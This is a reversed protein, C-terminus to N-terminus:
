PTVRFGFTWTNGAAWKHSDTTYLVQTKVTYKGIILNTEYQPPTETSTDFRYEALYTGEAFTYSSTEFTKVTVGDRDVIVSVKVKVSVGCLNQVDIIFPNLSFYNIGLEKGSVKINRYAPEANVIKAKAGTPPIVKVYVEARGKAGIDDTVTVSVKYMGVFEYSHDTTPKPRGWRDVSNYIPTGDGFDFEYKKISAGPAPYPRSESADFEIKQKIEQTAPIAKLSVTPPDRVNSFVGFKAEHDILNGEPDALVTDYLNLITGSNGTVNFSITALTGSGTLGNVYNPHWTGLTVSYWAFGLANNMEDHWVVSPGWPAVGTGYTGGVTFFDGLTIATYNQLITGNYGLKFEFGSLRSVGTVTINVPFLTGIPYNVTSVVAAPVVSLVPSAYVPSLNATATIALSLTLLLLISNKLKKM